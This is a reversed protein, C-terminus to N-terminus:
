EHLFRRNKSNKFESDSLNVVRLQSSPDELSVLSDALLIGTCSEFDLLTEVLSPSEKTAESSDNKVMM